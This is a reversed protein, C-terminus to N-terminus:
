KKNISNINNLIYPEGMQGKIDVNQIVLQEVNNVYIGLRSCPEIGDLMAPVDSKCNKSFEFSINEMEILEIKQEPLGYFYAAAVHCNECKINRFFLKKILPTREDVEHYEKSWVYETHGDPDCFYYCNLVLPTMVHDMVINEFIIDDIIADKGRGRRTKIRLGRDTHVFRCDKVLLNKVGGAMESGVTVAGHGNQMLCQKITINKSPKKYKSGMYIKGSKVAICDDGLSFQVGYIIVNECSEPDLGDTNPSDQPNEIRLDIFKLNDSFYPHINWAPSNQFQIGQISVENCRNLFLLRPRFAGKMVKANKWWNDFSANGDILGEGYLTVNSVNIGTLIGAFMPLPNGEWTGLNYESQEDYSEILGELKAFKSRDTEALIVADKAIEINIDSKLFISTVKYIGRPILVRSNPPCAMIAAQIFSTDDNVGDGKAGMDVVNLTVFEYDTTFELIEYQENDNCVSIKYNTDPKLEFLSNVVKNTKAYFEDNIYIYYNQNTFVVSGDEIEFSVSRATKMLLNLRM